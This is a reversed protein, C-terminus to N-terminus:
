APLSDEASSRSGACVTLALAPLLVFFLLFKKNTLEAM